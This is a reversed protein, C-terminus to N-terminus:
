LLTLLGAILVIGGVAVVGNYILNTYNLSVGTTTRYTPQPDVFGVTYSPQMVDGRQGLRFDPLANWPGRRDGPDDTGRYGPNQYYFSKLVQERTTSSFADQM